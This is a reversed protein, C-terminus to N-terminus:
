ETREQEQKLIDYHITDWRKLTSSCVDQLTRNAVEYSLFLLCLMLWCGESSDISLLWPASQILSQKFLWETQRSVAMLSSWFPLSYASGTRMRSSQESSHAVFAWKMIRLEGTYPEIQWDHACTQVWQASTHSSIPSFSQALAQRALAVDQSCIALNIGYFAM